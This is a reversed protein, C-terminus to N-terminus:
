EDNGGATFNSIAQRVMVFAILAFFLSAIAGIYVNSLIPILINIITEVSVGLFTTPATPTGSLAFLFGTVVNWIRGLLQGLMFLLESMFCWLYSLWHFWVLMFNIPVLSYNFISGFFCVASGWLGAIMGIAWNFYKWIEITLGPWGPFTFGPCNWNAFLFTSSAPATCPNIADGFPDSWEVTPFPVVPTPVVPPAGPTGGGSPPITGGPPPVPTSTAAPTSSPTRTITPTGLTPTPTTTPTSTAPCTATPTVTPTGAGPTATATATPTGAGPTPTPGCPLSTPTSTITPTPTPPIDAVCFKVDDAGPNNVRRFDVRWVSAVVCLGDGPNVIDSRSTAFNSTMSFEGPDRVSVGGSGGALVTEVYGESTDWRAAIQCVEVPSSFTFDVWTRPHSGVPFDVFGETSAWETSANDDLLNSPPFGTVFNEAVASDANVDTCFLPRSPTPTSTPTHTATATATLTPTPDVVTDFTAELYDVQFLCGTTLFLLCASNGPEIPIVTLVGDIHATVRFAFVFIQDTYGTLTFLDELPVFVSSVDGQGWIKITEWHTSGIATNSVLADFTVSVGEFGENVPVLTDNEVMQVGIAKFVSVGGAEVIHPTELTWTVEKDQGEGGLAAGFTDLQILRWPEYDGDQADLPVFDPHITVGGQAFAPGSFSILLLFILLFLLTRNTIM